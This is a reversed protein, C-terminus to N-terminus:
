PANDEQFIFVGDGHNCQDEASLKNIFPLLNAALLNNYNSANLKGEVLVIRMVSYLKIGIKEQMVGFYRKKRNKESILPKRVAKRGYTNKTHLTQRVAKESAIINLEELQKSLQYATTKPSKKSSDKM